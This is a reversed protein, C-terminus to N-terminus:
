APVPVAQPRHGGHRHHEQERRAAGHPGDGGGPPWWALPPSKQSWGACAEGGPTFGLPKRRALARERDGGHAGKGDPLYGRDGPTVTVLSSACTDRHHPRPALACRERMRAAVRGFPAYYPPRREDL